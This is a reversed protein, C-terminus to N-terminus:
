RRKPMITNFTAVCQLAAFSRCRLSRDMVVVPWWLSIVIIKIYPSGSLVISSPLGQTLTDVRSGPGSVFREVAAASQDPSQSSDEKFRHSTICALLFLYSSLETPLAASRILTHRRNSDTEPSCKKRALM